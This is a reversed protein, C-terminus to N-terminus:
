PANPAVQSARNTLHDVLLRAAATLSEYSRVCLRLERQAWPERLSLVNIMQAMVYPRVSNRPLVGIGLGAGVMACVGDLSSIQMRLRLPKNAEGAAKLLQSVAEEHLGIYDYELTDTFSVELAGDLPHGKPTIVVLEDVHYPLTELDPPPHDGLVFLGIDGENETISRAVVPSIREELHIHVGPHQALFARLEGPLFETLASINALLRVHGRIGASYERMQFYIEDLSHLVSRALNLLVTGAATPEIGRNTRNVLPTGLELELDSLRKSVASAAIHHREAIAAITGEEIVGVFFQLSAPDLRTRSLHKRDAPQM